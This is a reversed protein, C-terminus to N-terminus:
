YRDLSAAGRRWRADGAFFRAVTNSAIAFGVGVSGRVPSEVSATVGIVHGAANLLVGGSNGPNIAADTQILGRQPRGGLELGPLTREIASVVGTTLSTRLGFPDGIAAVPEGVVALDSDALTVPAVPLLDPDIQLVALDNARDFGIVAAPATNGEDNSVIVDNAGQVVHFNTVIHGLDDVFFGTGGGFGTSISVISPGVDLFIQSPDFEGFASLAPALAASGEPEIVLGGGVETSDAAVPQRTAPREAVGTAESTALQSAPEVVPTSGGDDVALVVFAAIVAGIAGAMLSAILTKM